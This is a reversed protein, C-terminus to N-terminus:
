GTSVSRRWLPPRTARRAATLVARTNVALLDRDHRFRSRSKPNWGLM